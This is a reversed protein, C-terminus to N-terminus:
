AAGNPPLMAYLGRRKAEELIAIRMWSAMTRDDQEAMVVLMKWVEPPMTFHADRQTGDRKLRM